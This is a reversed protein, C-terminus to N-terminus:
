DDKKTDSKSAWWPDVSEDVRCTCYDRGAFYTLQAAPDYSANAEPQHSLTIRYPLAAMLPIVRDTKVNLKEINM